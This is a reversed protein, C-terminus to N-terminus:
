ADLKVSFRHEFELNPLSVPPTVTEDWVNQFGRVVMENGVLKIYNIRYNEHGGTFEKHTFAQRTEMTEADILEWRRARVRCAITKHDIATFGRDVAPRKEALIQGTHIDLLQLARERQHCLVTSGNVFISTIGRRSKTRWLNEGTHSDLCFLGNEWTQVFIYKGDFSCAIGFQFNYSSIWKTTWEAKSGDEFFVSVVFPESTSDRDLTILRIAGADFATEKGYRYLCYNRHFVIEGKEKTQLYIEKLIM